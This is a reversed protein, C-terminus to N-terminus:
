CLNASYTVSRPQIANHWKEQTCRLSWSITRDQICREPKRNETGLMGDWATWIGAEEQLEKQSTGMSGAQQTASAGEQWESGQTQLSHVPTM